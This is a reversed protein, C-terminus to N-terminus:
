VVGTVVVASLLEVNRTTTVLVAPVMDLEAAVSVILPSAVAGLTGAPNPAVAIEDECILKDHVADVSL